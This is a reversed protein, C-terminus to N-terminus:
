QVPLLDYLRHRSLLSVIDHVVVTSGTSFVTKYM